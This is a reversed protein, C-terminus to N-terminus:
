AASLVPRHGGDCEAAVKEFERVLDADLKAGAMSQLISYAEDAPKPPKYSRKETLAAFIDCITIIRTIDDIEGARIGRPYGSGDLYEHHDRAVRAIEGGTQADRSLIDYGHAAHRKMIEWETADLAGPKDLIELPTMAKGVDHFFAADFLRGTQREGVGLARAFALTYGSVLACHQATGDHYNQILDIWVSMPSKGILETMARRQSAAEELAPAVPNARLRDFLDVVAGAIGNSVSARLAATKSALYVAHPDVQAILGVLSKVSMDTTINIFSFGAQEFAIFRRPDMGALFLITRSRMPGVLDALRAPVHDDPRYRGAFVLIDQRGARALERAGPVTRHADFGQSLLEALCADIEAQPEGMLQIGVRSRGM